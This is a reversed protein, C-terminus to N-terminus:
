YFYGQTGDTEYTQEPLTKFSTDPKLHKSKCLKFKFQSKGDKEGTRFSQLDLQTEEIALIRNWIKIREEESKAESPKLRDVADLDEISWLRGYGDYIGNLTKGDEFFVTIVSEIMPKGAHPYAPISEGSIGCAYSFFGM